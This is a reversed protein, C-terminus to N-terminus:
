KVITFEFENFYITADSGNSLGWNDLDEIPVIVSAKYGSSTELTVYSTTAGESISIIKGQLANRYSISSGVGTGGALIADKIFIKFKVSQGKKLNSDLDSIATLTNGDDLQMKVISKEMGNSISLVTGDFINYKNENEFIETIYNIASSVPKIAIRSSNVYYNVTNGTTLGLDKIAEITTITSINEWDTEITVNALVAYEKINSVRGTSYLGSGLSSLDGKSLVVDSGRFYLFGSGGYNEWVNTPAFYKINIDDNFKLGTETLYVDDAGEHPTESTGREIANNFYNTVSTDLVNESTKNNAKEYLEDLAGQVTTSSLGSSTNDYTVNSSYILSSAKAGLLFTLLLITILCIIKKTNM